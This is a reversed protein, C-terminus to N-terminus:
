DKTPNSLDTGTAAGLDNIIQGYRVLGARVEDDSTANLISEYLTNAYDIGGAIAEKQAASVNPNSMVQRMIGVVIQHAQRLKDLKQAPYKEELTAVIEANMSRSNAEAAAKIRDRMGDPLRVIFKDSERNTPAAM